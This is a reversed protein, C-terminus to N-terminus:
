TELEYIDSNEDADELMEGDKEEESSDNSEIMLTTKKKWSMKTIIVAHSVAAFLVVHWHTRAVNATQVKHM